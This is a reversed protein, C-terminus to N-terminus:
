RDRNTNAEDQAKMCATYRETLWENPSPDILLRAKVKDMEMRRESPMMEALDYHYYRVYQEYSEYPDPITCFADALQDLPIQFSCRRTTISRDLYFERWSGSCSFDIDSDTITHSM